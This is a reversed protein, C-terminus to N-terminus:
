DNLGDPLLDISCYDNKSDDIQAFPDIPLPDVTLPIALLDRVDVSPLDLHAINVTVLTEQNENVETDERHKTAMHKM